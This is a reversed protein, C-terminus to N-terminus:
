NERKALLTPKEVYVYHEDNMPHRGIYALPRSMM